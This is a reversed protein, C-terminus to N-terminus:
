KWRYGEGSKEARGEAVLFQTAAEQAKNAPVWWDIPIRDPRLRILDAILEGARKRSEARVAVFAKRIAEVQDEQRKIDTLAFHLREARLEDSMAEDDKKKTM